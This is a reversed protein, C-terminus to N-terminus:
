VAGLHKLVNQWRILKKTSEEIIEAIYDFNGFPKLLFDNVGSELMAIVKESAVYPSMVIIQTLVGAEKVASVASIGKADSMTLDVLAIHVTNNKIYEVAKEPDSYTRVNYGKGSLFGCLDSLLTEDRDLILINFNQRNM